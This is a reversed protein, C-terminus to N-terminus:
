IPFDASIQSTQPFVRSYASFDMLRLHSLNDCILAYLPLSGRSPQSRGGWKREGLITSSWGSWPLEMQVAASCESSGGIEQGVSQSGKQWHFWRNQVVTDWFM